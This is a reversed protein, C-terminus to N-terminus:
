TIIPGTALNNFIDKWTNNKVLRITKSTGEVYKSSKIRSRYKEYKKEEPQEELKGWKGPNKARVLKTDGLIEGVM